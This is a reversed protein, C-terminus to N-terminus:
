RDDDLAEAVQEFRDEDPGVFLQERLHDLAHARFHNRTKPSIGFGAECWRCGLSYIDERSDSETRIHGYGADQEIGGFLTVRMGFNNKDTWPFRVFHKFSIRADAM